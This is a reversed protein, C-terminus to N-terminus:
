KLGSIVTTLLSSREPVTVDWIEHASNGLTRLLYVKAADGKPLDKGNCLRVMQAGGAEGVGQEGPIHFLYKPDAPDTVYVVSQGHGEEMGTLPNMTVGGHHGIYAIWRTGQQHIVPQYASRAQLDHHSLLRMNKAESGHGTRVINTQAQSPGPMSGLLGLAVVATFRVMGLWVGLSSPGTGRSRDSLQMHGGRQAM